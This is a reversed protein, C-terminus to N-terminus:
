DAIGYVIWKYWWKLNRLWAVNAAPEYDASRYMHDFVPKTPVCIAKITMGILLIFGCFILGISGLVARIPLTLLVKITTM